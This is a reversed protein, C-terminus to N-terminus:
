AQFYHETTPWTKGALAIPYGAFNSFCGYEGDKLYFHINDAM